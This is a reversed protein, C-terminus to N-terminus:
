SRNFNKLKQKIKVLLDQFKSILDPDIEKIQNTYDKKYIKEAFKSYWSQSSRTKLMELYKPKNAIFYDDMVFKDSDQRTEAYNGQNLFLTQKYIFEGFIEKIKESCELGKSDNDFLVVFPNKNMLFYPIHKIVNDAGMSPFIAIDGLETRLIAHLVYFDNIGEVIIVPQRDKLLASFSIQLAHVIPKFSATNVESKKEIDVYNFSPYLKIFEGPEKSVIFINKLSFSNESNTLDINLMGHCHTTYIVINTESLQEFTKALNRQANEHLYLGPEDFLYIKSKNIQQEGSPYFLLTLVFCFYWNFGSSRDKLSFQRKLESGDKQKLKEFIKITISKDLSNHKLELELTGFRQNISLNNWEKMFKDNILKNVDSIYSGQADENLDFFQKLDKGGVKMFLNDNIKKTITTDTISVRDDYKINDSFFLIEPCYQLMFEVFLNQDNETTKYFKDWVISYTKKDKGINRRVEIEGNM